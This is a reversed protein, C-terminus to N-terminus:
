PATLKVVASRFDAPASLPSTTGGFDVTGTYNVLMNLSDKDAGTRYRNAIVTTGGQSNVDGYNHACLTAGDASALKLLYADTSATGPATLIASGSGVDMTGVFQGTAHVDGNSDASVRTGQQIDADGFRRAWQTDLSPNLKVVYVDQIGASTVTVTSAPVAVNNFTVSNQFSGTVIVNGSPDATIGTANQRLAGTQAFTHQAAISPTTGSITLKVVRINGSATDTGALYVVGSDDVTVASCRQDSGNAALLVTQATWTQAGTTANRKFATFSRTLTAGSGTVRTGCFVFSNDTPDVAVANV